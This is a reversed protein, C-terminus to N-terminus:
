NGKGDSHKQKMPFRVPFKNHTTSDQGDEGKKSPDTTRMRERACVCTYLCLNYTYLRCLATYRDEYTVTADTVNAGAAAVVLSALLFFFLGSFFSLSFLLPILYKFKSRSLRRSSQWLFSSSFLFLFHTKGRSM